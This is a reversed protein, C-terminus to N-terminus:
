HIWRVDRLSFHLFFFFSVFLDMRRRRRIRASLCLFQFPSLSLTSHFSLFALPFPVLFCVCLVTGFPYDCSSCQKRLRSNKWMIYSGYFLSLFSINFFVEDEKHKIVNTESKTRGRRRMRDRGGKHSRRASFRSCYDNAMSFIQKSANKPRQDASLRASTRQSVARNRGSFDRLLNRSLLASQRTIASGVARAM